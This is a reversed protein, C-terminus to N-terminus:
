LRLIDKVLRQRASLGEDLRMATKGKGAFTRTLAHDEKTMLLAPGKNRSVDITKDFANQPMHNAVEDVGKGADVDKFSGGKCVNHVFVENQGVFYTHYDEIAFNYVPIPSQLHEWKKILLHLENGESDVLIAGEELDGAVVFGVNKVYFPHAPTTVLEEGDINLHILEYADNIYTELVRKYTVDKTEPDESLVYDGEQINEIAIFGSITAVVTGAVFSHNSTMGRTIFGTIAGSM